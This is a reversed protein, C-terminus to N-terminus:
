KGEFKDITISNVGAPHAVCGRKINTEDARGGREINEPQKISLVADNSSHLAYLLRTNQARALAQPSLTGLARNLLFSNM